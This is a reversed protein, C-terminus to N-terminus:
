AQLAYAEESGAGAPGSQDAKQEIVHVGVIDNGQGVLAADGQAAAMVAVLREHAFEADFGGGAGAEVEVIGGRFDVAQGLDKGFDLFEERRSNRRDATPRM